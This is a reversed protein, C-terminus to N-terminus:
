INRKKTLPYLRNVMPINLIVDFFKELVALLASEAIAPKPEM